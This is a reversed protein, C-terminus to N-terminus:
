TFYLVNCLHFLMVHLVFQLYLITRVSHVRSVYNTEPIYNYISHCCPHHSHYNCFLLLAVSSYHHSFIGSGIADQRDKPVLLTSHVQLSCHAQPFLRHCLFNMCNPKLLAVFVFTTCSHMAVTILCSVYYAAASLV